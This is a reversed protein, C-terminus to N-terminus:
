FKFTEVEGWALPGPSLHKISGLHNWNWVFASAICLFIGAAEMNVIPAQALSQKLNILPTDKMRIPCLFLLFFNLVVTLHNIDAHNKM